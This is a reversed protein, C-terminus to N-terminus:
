GGNEESNLEKRIEDRLDNMTELLSSNRYESNHELWIETVADAIACLTREIRELRPLTTTHLKLGLPDNM